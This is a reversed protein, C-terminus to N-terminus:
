ADSKEAVNEIQAPLLLTADFNQPTQIASTEFGVEISKAGAFQQALNLTQPNRDQESMGLARGIGGPVFAVPAPAFFIVRFQNGPQLPIADIDTDNVCPPFTDPRRLLGANARDDLSNIAESQDRPHPIFGSALPYDTL